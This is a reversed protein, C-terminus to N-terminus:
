VSHGSGPGHFYGLVPGGHLHYWRPRPLPGYRCRLPPLYVVIPLGLASIPIAPLSFLAVRWRPLKEESSM